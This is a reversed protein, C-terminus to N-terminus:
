EIGEHSSKQARPCIKLWVCQILSIFQKSYPHDFSLYVWEVWLLENVRLKGRRCYVVRCVLCMCWVYESWQGVWTRDLYMVGAIWENSRTVKFAECKFDVCSEDHFWRVSNWIVQRDSLSLNSSFWDSSGILLKWPFCFLGLSWFCVWCTCVLFASRDSSYWLRQFIWREKSSFPAM